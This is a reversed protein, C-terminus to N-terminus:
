FIDKTANDKFIFDFKRIFEYYEFCTKKLMAVRKPIYQRLITENSNYFLSLNNLEYGPSISWTIQLLTAVTKDLPESETSYVNTDIVDEIVVTVQQKKTVKCVQKDSMKKIKNYHLPVIVNTDIVIKQM